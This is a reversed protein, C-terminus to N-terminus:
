ALGYQKRRLEHVFEARPCDKEQRQFSYSLAAKARPGSEVAKARQRAAGAITSGFRGAVDAGPAIAPMRMANMAPASLLTSAATM